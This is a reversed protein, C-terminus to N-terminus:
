APVAEVGLLRAWAAALIDWSADHMGGGACFGHSVAWDRVADFEAADLIEPYVVGSPMQGFAALGAWYMGHTLTLVCGCDLGQADTRLLDLTMDLRGERAAASVIERWGDPGRADLVQAGRAVAQDAAEAPSM